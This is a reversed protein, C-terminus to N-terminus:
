LFSALHFDSGPCQLGVSLCQMPHMSWCVNMTRIVMRQNDPEFFAATACCFEIFYKRIFCKEEAWGMEILFFFLNRLLNKGVWDAIKDNKLLDWCDAFHFFIGAFSSCITFHSFLVLVSSFKYTTFFFGNQIKVLSHFSDLHIQPVNSICKSQMLFRLRHFIGVYESYIAKLWCTSTQAHLLRWSLLFFHAATFHIGYKRRQFATLM